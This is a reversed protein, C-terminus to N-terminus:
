QCNIQVGALVFTIHLSCKNGWRSGHLEPEAGLFLVKTPGPMGTIRYKEAEM